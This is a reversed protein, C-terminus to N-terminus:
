GEGGAQGTRRGGRRHDPPHREPVQRTWCFGPGRFGIPKQGAAEQILEDTERIEKELEALGYRSLWPEHHFSHNGVEHGRATLARLAERNKELAADQGVVFFTIKLGLDELLDLAVPILVPLYTPFDEWGADGHTKMYSWRNDLDLSLSCLPKNPLKM